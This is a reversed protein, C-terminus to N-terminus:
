LIKTMFTVDIYEGGKFAIERLTSIPKFGCRSHLSLSATNNDTVVAILCHYKGFSERELSSLLMTGIGKHRYRHSVYVSIEATTDYGSFYRFHSLSAWGVVEGDLEAVLIPYNEAKHEDFWKNADEPSREHTNLNYKTHTIAYNLIKNIDSIDTELAKRIKIDFMILDDETYLFLPKIVTYIQTKALAQAM